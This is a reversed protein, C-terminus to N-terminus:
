ARPSFRVVVARKIAGGGSKIRRDMDPPPGHESAHLMLLPPGDSPGAEHYRLVGADTTMERLTSEYTFDATM